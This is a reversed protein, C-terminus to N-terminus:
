SRSPAALPARAAGAAVRSRGGPRCSPRPPSVRGSEKRVVLSGFTRQASEALPRRSARPFPEPSHNSAPVEAAPAEAAPFTSTELLDLLSLQEEHSM